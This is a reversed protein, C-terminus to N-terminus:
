VEPILEMERVPGRMLVLYTGFSLLLGIFVSIDSGGILGVLPGRYLPANTFAATGLFGIVFAVIARM